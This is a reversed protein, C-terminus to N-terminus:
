MSGDIYSDAEQQHLTHPSPYIRKLGVTGKPDVTRKLGDVKSNTHYRKRSPSKDNLFGSRVVFIGKDAGLM